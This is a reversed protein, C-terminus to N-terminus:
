INDGAHNSSHWALEAGKGNIDLTRGYQFTETPAPQM